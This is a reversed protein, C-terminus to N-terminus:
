QVSILIPAVPVKGLDAATYTKAIENSFTSETVFDASTATAVFYYTGPSTVCSGVDVPTSNLSGLGSTVLTYPGGTQLGCSVSYTLLDTAPIVTGDEYNTPPTATFLTNPAALGVVTLLVVSLGIIARKM